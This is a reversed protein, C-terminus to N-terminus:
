SHLSNFYNFVLPSDTVAKYIAPIAPVSTKRAPRSCFAAHLSCFKLM